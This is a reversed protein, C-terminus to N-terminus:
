AAAELQSCLEKSEPDTAQACLEKAQAAEAASLPPEAAVGGGEKIEAEEVGEAEPAPAEIGAEDIEEDSINSWLGSTGSQQKLERLGTSRKVLGSDVASNVTDTNTKGINSKATDDMQYLSNFTIGFGDAPPQGISMMMARYILTLGVKLHRNQQQNIGAYYMEAEGNGNSGLGGPSKGLLRTLPIQLAGAIQEAFNLLTDSLGAFAQNQTQEFKDTSDILTIGEISQMQRMMEIMGLLGKLADGGAAIIDRLGDIAYTRIYAKYVLQAAGATASDYAVLRDYLRELVSLSWLNEAVRQQYPLEVGEMRICRTYHIKEGRLGPANVGVTYFKPLGMFPGEDTVVDDVSPQLMWRDFTICGKFQGKGITEIRLPTSYKQGGVMMVTIAGGYLRSWKVLGNIKGWIDLSTALEQVRAMVKPDTVGSINVGARTMDDAVVDIAVGGLWSGRHIWELLTRQRTIPNFGYGSNDTINGTGMGLAASFNQFSDGTRTQKLMKATDREATAQQQRLRKVSVKGM